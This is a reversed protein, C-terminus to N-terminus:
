EMRSPRSSRRDAPGRRRVDPLRVQVGVRVDRAHHRGTLLLLHLQLLLALVTLAILRPQPLGVHIAM